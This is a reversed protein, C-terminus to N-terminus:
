TLNNGISALPKMPSKGAIGLKVLHITTERLVARFPCLTSSVMGLISQIQHTTWFFKWVPFQQHGAISGSPSPWQTHLKSTPLPPSPRHRRSHGALISLRNTRAVGAPPSHCAPLPPRSGPPAIILLALNGCTITPTGILRVRFLSIAAQRDSQYM